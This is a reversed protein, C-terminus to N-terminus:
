FQFVCDSLLVLNLCMFATIDDETDNNYVTIMLVLLAGFTGLNVVSTYKM